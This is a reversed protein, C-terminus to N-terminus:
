SPGFVPYFAENFNLGVFMNRFLKWFRMFVTLNVLHKVLTELLRAKIAGNLMHTLDIRVVVSLFFFAVILERLQQRDM